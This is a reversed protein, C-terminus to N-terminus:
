LFEREDFMSTDDTCDLHYMNFFEQDQKTHYPLTKGCVCEKLQILM